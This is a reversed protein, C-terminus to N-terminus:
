IRVTPLLAKSATPLGSNISRIARSIVNFSSPLTDYLSADKETNTVYRRLKVSDKGRNCWTPGRLGSSTKLGLQSGGERLLQHIEFALSANAQASISLTFIYPSRISIALNQLTPSLIPCSIPTTFSRWSIIAPHTSSILPMGFSGVFQCRFVAFTPSCRECSRLQGYCAMPDVETELRKKHVWIM